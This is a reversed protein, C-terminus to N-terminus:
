LPIRTDFTTIVHESTYTRSRWFEIPDYTVKVIEYTAPTKFFIREVIKKYRGIKDTRGGQIAFGLDNIHPVYETPSQRLVKFLETLEDFRRPPTYSEDGLTLVRLTFITQENPIISFLNWSFFPYIGERVFMRLGTGFCFYLVVCGIAIHKIYRDIM